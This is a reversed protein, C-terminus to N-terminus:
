RTRAVRFRVIMPVDLSDRQVAWVHDGSALHLKTAPPLTVEGRLIGDHEFVDYTAPEIWDDPAGPATDASAQRVAPMSRGVWLGGDRGVIIERIFPKTRPIEPGSWRWTPDVTRMDRTIAEALDRREENGVAIVAADREIRLIKGSPRPIDIAYRGAHSRGVTGWPTLLTGDQDVFPLAAGTSTNGNQARLMPAEERAPLAITDVIRGDPRVRTYAFRFGGENSGDGSRLLTPVYINSATDTHLAHPAFIMSSQWRWSTRVTGTPEFVTIRGVQPDWVAVGGDPAPAIGAADVYEGPGQGKRGLTRVFVGASDYLRLESLRGDWIYIGGAPGEVIASVRALQYAEDGDVSGIRVAPELRLVPAKGAATRVRITDGITDIVTALGARAEASRDACAVASALSLAILAALPRRIDLDSSARM